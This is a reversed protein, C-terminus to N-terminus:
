GSSARLNSRWVAPSVRHSAKFAHSFSSLDSFGLINAITTLPIDSDKLYREAMDLRVEAKLERFTAGHRRLERQLAKPHMTMQSALTEQSYDPAQMHREILMRVKSCFDEQRGYEEELVEIQRNLQDYLARNHDPAARNLDETPFILSNFDQDFAVKVGFFRDYAQREQPASHIFGVARPRWAAGCLARMVGLMSCTCYVAWQFTPIEGAVRDGRTLFALKGDIHLRWSIGRNHLHLHEAASTLAQEMNPSQALLPWLLGLQYVKRRDGMMLGLTPAELESAALDLLSCVSECPILSDSNSILKATLGVRQYLPRPDGGLDRVLEDFGALVASRVLHVDEAM